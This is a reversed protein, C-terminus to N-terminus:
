LICKIKIKCFFGQVIMAVHLIRLALPREQKVHFISFGTLQLYESSDSLGGNFLFYPITIEAPMEFKQMFTFDWFYPSYEINPNIEPSSTNTVVVGSNNKLTYRVLFAFSGEAKDFPFYFSNTKTYNLKTHLVEGLNQTESTLIVRNVESSYFPNIKLEFCIPAGNFLVKDSLGMVHQYELAYGFNQFIKVRDICMESPTNVDRLASVSFSSITIEIEDDGNQSAPSLFTNAQILYNISQDNYFDPNELDPDVMGHFLRGVEVEYLTWKVFWYGFYLFAILLLIPIAQIFDKAIKRAVDKTVKIHNSM